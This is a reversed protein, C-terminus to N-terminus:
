SRAEIMNKIISNWFHTVAGVARMGKNVIGAKPVTNRKEVPESRHDITGFQYYLEIWEEDRM